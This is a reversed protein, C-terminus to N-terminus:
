NEEEVASMFESKKDSEWDSAKRLRKLNRATLPLVSSNTDPKPKAPGPNTTNQGYLNQTTNKPHKHTSSGGGMIVDGGSDISMIQDGDRDIPSNEDRNPVPSKGDPNPAPSNKPTKPENPNPFRGGAGNDFVKPGHQPSPEQQPEQQPETNLREYPNTTNKGGNVGGTIKGYGKKSGKGNQNLHNLLILNETTLLLNPTKGKGKNPKRQPLQPLPGIFDAHVVTGHEMKGKGKNM